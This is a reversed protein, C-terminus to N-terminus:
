RTRRDEAEIRKIVDDATLWGVVSDGDKEKVLDGYIEILGKDYGFSGPQCIADWRSEEEEPVFIQHRAYKVILGTKKDFEADEDVREFTIRHDILYKELKDLETKIKMM